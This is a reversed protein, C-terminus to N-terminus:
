RGGGNIAVKRGKELYIAANEAQKGMVVIRIFDATPKGAQEFEQKKQKSLNKDVALTFQCIAMGSGAVCRLVM